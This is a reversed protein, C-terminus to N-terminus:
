KGRRFLRGAAARVSSYRAGWLMLMVGAVLLVLPWAVQDRLSNQQLRILGVALFVLGTALYNKMQKSISWFVFVLATAPLLVEFLRAERLLSAAAGNAEARETANLGLLLLSTLVHTPIVFRFSKAVTRMQPSPVRECILQLVAYIGANIIFLYEIQGRTWPFTSRLWDAYPEHFGAVGSLSAFTFFVAVPYFHRSDTSRKLRELVGAVVFFLIAAPILRVFARGVHDPIWELMGLRLLTVVCLLATMTSIVLSFASSQTFRRLGLYVPL